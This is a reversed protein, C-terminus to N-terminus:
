QEEYQQLIVGDNGFDDWSRTSHGFTNDRHIKDNDTIQLATLSNLYNIILLKMLTFHITGTRLDSQSLWTRLQQLITSLRVGVAECCSFQPNNRWTTFFEPATLPTFKSKLAARM